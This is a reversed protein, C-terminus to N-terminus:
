KRKKCLKLFCMLATCFAAVAVIAWLLKPRRQIARNKVHAGTSPALRGIEKIIFDAVLTNTNDDLHLGDNLYGLSDSIPDLNLYAVHDPIFTKIEKLVLKINSTSLVDPLAGELVIIQAPKKSRIHEIANQFHLLTQSSFGGNLLNNAGISILVVTDSDISLAANVVQAKLDEVKAGNFAYQIGDIKDCLSSEGFSLRSDGLCVIKRPHRSMTPHCLVRPKGKTRVCKLLKHSAAPRTPIMGLAWVALEAVNEASLIVVRGDM